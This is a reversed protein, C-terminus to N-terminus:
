SLLLYAFGLSLLPGTYPLARSWLWYTALGLGLLRMLADGVFISYFLHNSRSLAWGLAAFAAISQIGTWLVMGFTLPALPKNLLSAVFLLFLTAGTLASLGQIQTTRNM